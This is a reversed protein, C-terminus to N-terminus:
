TIKDGGPLIKIFKVVMFCTVSVMCIIIPITKSPYSSGFWYGCQSWWDMVLVHSLYIGFSANAFEKEIELLPRSNWSLKALMFWGIICAGVNPTLYDYFYKHFKGNNHTTSAWYTGFVTVCSGIVILAVSLWWLQSRTMPWPALYKTAPEGPLPKQMLYAGLIFYGVNNSFTEWYMGISLGWFTYLIKYGWASGACLAFIYWYDKDRATRVWPRILPYVLYLGVILYIFWLHYHVPGELIRILADKLTAPGKKALFGYLLYVCMWFLGPIVVRSLRKRLFSGTPYDKTLLLAGSLLVFIPVSARSVGDWWNSVWWDWTNMDPLQEALPGSVHIAIVMVTALNRLRDAWAFLPPTALNSM